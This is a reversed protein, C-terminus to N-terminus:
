VREDRDQDGGEKVSFRGPFHQSIQFNRCPATVGKNVSKERPNARWFFTQRQSSDSSERSTRTERNVIRLRERNYHFKSKDTSIFPVVCHRTMLLM